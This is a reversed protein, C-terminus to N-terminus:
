HLPKHHSSTFWSMIKFRSLKNYFHKTLSWQTRSWDGWKYEWEFGELFTQFADEATALSTEPGTAVWYWNCHEEGASLENRELQWSPPLAPEATMWDTLNFPNGYKDKYAIFNDGTLKVDVRIEEQPEQQSDFHDMVTQLTLGEIEFEHVMGAPRSIRIDKELQGHSYMVNYDWQYPAEVGLLEQIFCDKHPVHFNVWACDDIFAKYKTRFDTESQLIKAPITLYAADKDDPNRVLEAPGSTPRKVIVTNCDRYDDYRIIDGHRLDYEKVLDDIEHPDSPPQNSDSIIFSRSGRLGLLGTAQRFFIKAARGAATSATMQLYFLCKVFGRTAIITLRICVFALTTM